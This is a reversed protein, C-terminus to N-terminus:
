NRPGPDKVTARIKRRLSSRNTDNSQQNILLDTFSYLFRNIANRRTPACREDETADIAPKV